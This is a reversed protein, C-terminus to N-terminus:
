SVLYRTVSWVASLFTLYSVSMITVVAWRPLREIASGFVKFFVLALVEAMLNIIKM